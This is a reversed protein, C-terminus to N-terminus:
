SVGPGQRNARDRPRTRAWVVPGAVWAVLTGTWIAIGGTVSVEVMFWGGAATILSAISCLAAVQLHSLGRDTLQQYAHSRHATFVAKGLQLRRLLTSGTDALYVLIPGIMVPWPVGTAIGVTVTLSIAAGLSYSGVDGLFVKGRSNSPYFGLAAGLLAAGVLAVTPADYTFGALWFAGGAAATNLAAIGNVGDMFNFANTYAAVFLAIAPTWLMPADTASCIFAGALSGVVLQSALRMAPHLHDFDDRLGVAGLVLAASLLAWIAGTSVLALAPVLAALVAVGGVRPTPTLHSSRENPEDVLRFGFMRVVLPTVVLTTLLAGLFVLASAGM